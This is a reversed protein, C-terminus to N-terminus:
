KAMLMKITKTFPTTRDQPTAIIRAFYVGSAFRAGDFMVSYSGANKLGEALTAIQRGLIDYVKISMYSSVPIQFSM